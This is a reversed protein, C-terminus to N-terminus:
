PQRWWPRAQDRWRPTGPGAVLPAGPGAVAPTGPGAVAPTFASDTYAASTVRRYTGPGDSRGPGNDPIIATPVGRHPRTTWELKKGKKKWRPHVLVVTGDARTISFDVIGEIIKGWNCERSAVARHHDYSGALRSVAVATIGTGVIAHRDQENFAAVMTRWDWQVWEGFTYDQRVGHVVKQVWEGTTLIHDTALPLNDRYYKLAGNHDTWPVATERAAVAALIRELTWPGAHQADAMPSAATVM